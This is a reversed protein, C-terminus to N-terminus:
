PVPTWDHKRRPAIDRQPYITDGRALMAAFQEIRRRRTEPRKATTVRYLIAYRNSASLKDFM